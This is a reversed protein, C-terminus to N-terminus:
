GVKRGRESDGDVFVVSEGPVSCRSAIFVNRAEAGSDQGAYQPYLTEHQASLPNWRYVAFRQGDRAPPTPPYHVVETVVVERPEILSPDKFARWAAAFRRRLM